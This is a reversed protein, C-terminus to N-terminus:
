LIAGLGTAVTGLVLLVVCLIAVWWAFPNRQRLSPYPAAAGPGRDADGPSRSTRSTEKRRTM